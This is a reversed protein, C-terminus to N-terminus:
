QRVIFGPFDHGSSIQARPTPTEALQMRVATGVMTGPTKAFIHWERATESVGVLSLEEAAGSPQISLVSFTRTTAKSGNRTRFVTMSYQYGTRHNEWQVPTYEPITDLAHGIRQVDAVELYEGAYEPGLPLQIPAKPNLRCGATLVLLAATLIMTLRKM